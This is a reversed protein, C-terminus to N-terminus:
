LVSAFRIIQVTQTHNIGGNSGPPQTVAGNGYVHHTLPSFLKLAVLDEGTVFGLVVTILLQFPSVRLLTTM